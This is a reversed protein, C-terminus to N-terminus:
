GGGGGGRRFFSICLNSSVDAAVESLNYVPLAFFLCFFRPSPSFIFNMMMVKNAERNRGM